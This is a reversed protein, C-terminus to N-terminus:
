HIERFTMMDYETEYESPSIFPPMLGFVSITNIMGGAILSLFLLLTKITKM